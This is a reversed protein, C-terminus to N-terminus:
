RFSRMRWSGSPPRMGRSLDELVSSRAVSAVSTEDDPVAVDRRSKRVTLKSLEENATEVEATEVVATEPEVEAKM